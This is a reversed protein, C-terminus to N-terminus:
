NANTQVRWQHDDQLALAPTAAYIDGYWVKFPGRLMRLFPNCGAQLQHTGAGLASTDRSCLFFTPGALHRVTDRRVIKSMASM